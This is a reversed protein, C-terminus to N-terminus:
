NHNKSLWVELFMALLIALLIENAVHNDVLSASLSFEVCFTEFHTFILCLSNDSNSSTMFKVVLVLKILRKRM